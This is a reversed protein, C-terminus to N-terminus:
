GSTRGRRCYYTAAKRRRIANLVRSLVWSNLPTIMDAFMKTM